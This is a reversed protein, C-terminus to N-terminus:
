ILKFIYSKIIIELKKNRFYGKQTLKIWFNLLTKKLRFKTGVGSQRISARGRRWNNKRNKKCGYYEKDVGEGRKNIIPSRKWDSNSVIYKHQSKESRVLPIVRWYRTKNQLNTCLLCCLTKNQLNTYLLWSIEM